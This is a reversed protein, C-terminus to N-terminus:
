KCLSTFDCKNHLIDSKNNLGARTLHERRQGPAELEPSSLLAERQWEEWPIVCPGKGWIDLTATLTLSIEKEMLLSMLPSAIVFLLM